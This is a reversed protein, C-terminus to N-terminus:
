VQAKLGVLFDKLGLPERSQGDRCGSDPAEPDIGVAILMAQSAVVGAERM